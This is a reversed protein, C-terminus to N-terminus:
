DYPEVLVAEMTYGAEALDTSLPETRIVGTVWVTDFLKRIVAGKGAQMTVYVTQNAPPPPVHICAGYYPVLLFSSTAEGDTEVPLVFGPLRVRQGNLEPNVPAQKWVEDLKKALEVVVPDDDELQDLNYQEQYQEFIADPNYDEPVLDTWELERASEDAAYLSGACACALLFFLSLSLVNRAMLM